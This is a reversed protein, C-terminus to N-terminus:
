LLSRRYNFVYRSVSCMNQSFWLLLSLYFSVMQHHTALQKLHERVVEV